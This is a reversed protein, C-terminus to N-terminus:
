GYTVEEGLLTRIAALRDVLETIGELSISGALEVFRAQFSELASLALRHRSELLQIRSRLDIEGRRGWRM